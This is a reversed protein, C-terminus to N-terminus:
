ESIVKKRQSYMVIGPIIELFLVMVAIITSSTNASTFYLIGAGIWWGSALFIMLKNELVTHSVFYGIGVLFSLLSLAVPLDVKPNIATLASFIMCAAGIAWWLSIYIRLSITKINRGTKRKFGILFMLLFAVAYDIVWIWIIANYVELAAAIKTGVIGIFIIVGIVIFFIGNDYIINRTDTVIGKIYALDEKAQKEDMMVGTTM